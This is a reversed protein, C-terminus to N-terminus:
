NVEKNGNIKDEKIHNKEPKQEETEQKKDEKEKNVM